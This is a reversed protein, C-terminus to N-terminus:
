RTAAPRYLFAFLAGSLAQLDGGDYVLPFGRDQLLDAVANILDPSFRPDPTAPVPLPYSRPTAPEPVDAWIRSAGSTVFQATM